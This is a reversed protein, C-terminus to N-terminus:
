IETHVVTLENTQAYAEARGGARCCILCGKNVIKDGIIEPDGSFVLRELQNCGSFARSDIRRVSEPIRVEKLKKCNLFAGEGIRDLGEPLVLEEIGCFYFGQEGIAKLGVPMKVASLKKCKYFTRRNIQELRVPLEVQQLNECGAFAEAGISAANRLDAYVLARNGEAVKRPIHINRGAMHFRTSDKIQRYMITDGTIYTTNYRYPNARTLVIAGFPVKQRRFSVIVM